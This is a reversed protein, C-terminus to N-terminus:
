RTSARTWRPRFVCVLSLSLKFILFSMQFLPRVRNVLSPSGTREVRNVFFFDFYFRTVPAPFSEAWRLAFTLGRGECFFKCNEPWFFETFEM